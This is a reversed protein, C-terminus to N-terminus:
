WQQLRQRQESGHLVDGVCTMEGGARGSVLGCGGVQQGSSDVAAALRTLAAATQPDAATAAAETAMVPEFTSYGGAKTM